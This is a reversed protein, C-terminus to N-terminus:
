SMKSFVAINDIQVFNLQKRISLLIVNMTHQGTGQKNRLGFPM